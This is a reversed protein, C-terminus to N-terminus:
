WRIAQFRGRYGRCVNRYYFITHARYTEHTHQQSKSATVVLFNDGSRPDRSGIGALLFGTVTDADGILALKLHGAASSM